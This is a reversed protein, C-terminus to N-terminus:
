ETMPEIVSDFQKLLKIPVLQPTAAKESPDESIVFRCLGPVGAIGVPVEAMGNPTASGGIGGAQCDAGPPEYCPRLGYMYAFISYWRQFHWLGVFAMKCELTTLDM